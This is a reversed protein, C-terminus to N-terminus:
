KKYNVTLEKLDIQAELKLLIDLGLLGNIDGQPDIIGFDLKIGDIKINDIEISDVTKSFFSHLDGGIGYYSNVSDSNFAEIGIDMVTDPSILTEIAGTDLVINNIVKKHGLYNVKLSTFLLGNRLELKM